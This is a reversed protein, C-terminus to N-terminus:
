RVTAVRVHWPMAAVRQHRRLGDVPAYTCSGTNPDFTGMNCSTSQCAIDAIGEGTLAVSISSANTSDNAVILSATVAGTAVPRFGRM